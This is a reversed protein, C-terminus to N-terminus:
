IIRVQTGVQALAFLQTIHENYLGICGDSSPRGIKRTDHTGHIRYYQWSLYLAYPGLPNLPDNGPVVAPWEPFRERMSPTPTWTPAVKKEVVETYGRRTLDESAPVSTPYVRYDSGDASWYHLSTSGTDAVIAGTGLSEFHDRWDHTVFGSANRPADQARLLGPAALGALLTGAGLLLTRRNTHHSMDNDQEAATHTRGKTM